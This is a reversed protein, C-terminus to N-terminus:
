GRRGEVGIGEKEDSLEQKLKVKTMVPQEEGSGPIYSLLYLAQRAHVFGITRIGASCSDTLEYKDKVVCNLALLGWMLVHSYTQPSPKTPLRLDWTQVGCLFFSPATTCALLGLVASQPILPIAPSNSSVLRAQTNFNWALSPVWRLYFTSPHERVKVGAACWLFAFWVLLKGFSQTFTIPPSAPSGM